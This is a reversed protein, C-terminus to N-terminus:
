MNKNIESELDQIIKILQKGYLKEASEYKQDQVLKFFKEKGGTKIIRKIFEGGLQYYVWEPYANPNKWANVISIKNKYDEEKKKKFAENLKSAETLDFAVATGENIFRSESVPKAFNYTIIHTIEHGPTQNYRSHILCFEPRSFGLKKIGANKAQENSNWVIFDIRKPIAANFFSNIINFADQKSNAFSDQNAIVSHPPFHFVFNKTEIINWNNYYNDLGFLLLLKKSTKNVNKTANLTLCNTFDEKAKLNNSLNFDIIGLYVLGWAKQWSNKKDLQIAKEILPKAEQYEGIDALTRGKILNITIDNSNNQLLKDTKELLINYQKHNYLDWLDPYVNQASIQHTLTIFIFLFLLFKLKM